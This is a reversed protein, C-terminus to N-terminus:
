SYSANNRRSMRCERLRRLNGSCWATEYSKGVVTTHAALCIFRDRRSGTRFPFTEVILLKTQREFYCCAWQTHQVPIKTGKVGLLYHLPLSVTTPSLSFNQSWQQQNQKYLICVGKAMNVNTDTFDRLSVSPFAPTISRDTKINSFDQRVYM